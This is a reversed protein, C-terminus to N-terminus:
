AKVWIQEGEIKVAFRRVPGLDRTFALDAPYVNKPYLNEGTRVDYRYHHWPCEVVGQWLDGEDLPGGRHPCRVDLAHIEGDTNVVLLRRGNVEVARMTGPPVESVAAVRVFQRVSTGKRM